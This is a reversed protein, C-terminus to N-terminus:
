SIVARDSLRRWNTGDSFCVTGGGSENSVYITTGAGHSSASPVTGVTYSSHKIGGTVVIGLARVQLINISQRQIYFDHATNTGLYGADNHIALYRIQVNGGIIRLEARSASSTTDTNNVEFRTTANQNVGLSLATTFAGSGGTIAVAGAAQTAMTGLSLTARAAAADADDVLARGFGSFDALAWTGAGTAYPLRDAASTLAAIAALDADYAQVSVGIDAPMLGSAYPLATWATVGDGFKFKDTDTELGLERDLLVENDTTWDAAARGRVKFRYNVTVTM